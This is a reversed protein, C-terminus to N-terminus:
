CLSTARAHLPFWPWPRKSESSGVKAPNLHFFQFIQSMLINMLNGRLTNLHTIILHALCTLGPFFPVEYTLVGETNLKGQFDVERASFNLIKNMIKHKSGSNFGPGNLVLCKNDM